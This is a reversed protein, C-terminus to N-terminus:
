YPRTNPEILGFMLCLLLVVIIAASFWLRKGIYHSMPLRESDQKLMSFMARFLNLVVTLFLIVILIKIITEM